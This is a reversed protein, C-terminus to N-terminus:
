NDLVERVKSVLDNPSFPKPLFAIDPDLIGNHVIANDAYGSMYLVKMQPHLSVLEAALQVGNMGGPIVVDTLLLHIPGDHEACIRRAQKGDKAELVTYGQNFLARRAQARVMEEDEVLLITEWGQGSKVPAQNPQDQEGTAEIQPLYIKFTTGQGPESYVWIHGGSQNVIGHVTALGLGTGKGPEKTTFFPEFIRAQTEADMGLGTDSIALMVYSGAEVGVHQCAYAEDLYVNATEITLKGGEPMADRANLALNMIIQELQGPDAKVWGLQPDLMTALAIDEGILRQLMKETNTVIDNLGLIKPELIQRRSFALLQRTLSAARETATQIQQIDPRLPHQQGLDNLIFSCNGLIVTLINNFDHAVGGTLQGIAEMKQSQHYQAQLQQRQKDLRLRALVGAVQSGVSWALNIEEASFQHPEIAELSLSGIVEGEIILPVILLSMTSRQEVLHRIADLRRDNQADDVVLPTKHSLIHQALPFDAVPIIQGLVAPRGEALYEAVIVAEAKEENLLIAAAQPFNFTLALERCTIELIAEAENETVSAAIVRNLLALERNRRQIEEEAQKRETIDHCVILVNLTGEPGRIAQVFEEVWLLSGDKRVKRFQWTYVQGPNRLCKQVQEVVAPKDDDYFVKLVPQGELEDITYGLQSAGFANVSIVKGEADITFFMSPNDRYLARFREESERLTEEAQKREAIEHGLEANARQLQQNAASLEGTRLRVKQELRETLERLRLHTTVRALLEDPQFPKTIYDVAGVRFGNIKAETETIGTLFIVPIDQTTEDAKLRRCTEFGDIGPMLVDLLILDPQGYQAKQLGAEGDRAILVELDFNELYNSMVRLNAPEDDIILITHGQLTVKDPNNLPITM